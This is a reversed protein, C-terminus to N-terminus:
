KCGQVTVSGKTNIVCSPRGDLTITGVGAADVKATRTAVLKVIAPGQAGIVADKAALASGDVMSMGRVVATIKGVTGGLRASSAGALGISFQDVEVQDIAIMGAGQASAEFKLGSVRNVALSGAGNLFLASLEHTGIAIEVPGSGEGPYGGWGSARNSRIVLTRGEVKMSIMDLARPDGTARAFPAMGNTVTVRYDGDLRIRDFGSVGYNRSATAAAAPPALSALALLALLSRIM